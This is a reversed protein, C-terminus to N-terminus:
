RWGRDEEEKLDEEWSDEDEEEDLCFLCLKQDTDGCEECFRDGCVKCKYLTDSEMGCVICEPM